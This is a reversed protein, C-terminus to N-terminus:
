RGGDALRQGTADFAHARGWNPRLVVKQDVAYQGSAFPAKISILHDGVQVRVLQDYGIPEVVYVTGPLGAGADTGIEVDSPWLGIQRTGAPLDRVPVRRGDVTLGGADDLPLLNMKPDGLMGAVDTDNPAAYIEAPTGFQRVKGAILVAVRDAIGFAEVYDPTTYVTTAGRERQYHRLEARLAHRLRADLHAIPEDLLTVAPTRVLARGLSVRQRQGGSLQSPKRGLLPTIELLEAVRAIRAAKEAASLGRGPADLPFELNRRVSWHPYLAYSEFAMAVDRGQPPLQDVQREGFYISGASLEEVGAILKLTTTKGGGPRGFIVVFEGDAISLNLGTVAERDGFRRTVNEM